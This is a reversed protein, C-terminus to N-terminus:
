KDSATYMMITITTSASSNGISSTVENNPTGTNATVNSLGLLITGVFVIM